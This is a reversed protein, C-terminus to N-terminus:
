LALLLFYFMRCSEWLNMMGRRTGRVGAEM